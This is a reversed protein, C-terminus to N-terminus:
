WSNVLYLWYDIYCQGECSKLKFNCKLKLFVITMLHQLRLFKINVIMLCIRTKYKNLLKLSKHELKLVKFIHFCWCRCLLSVINICKNILLKWVGYVPYYQRNKNLVFILFSYHIHGWINFKVWYNQNNVRSDIVLHFEANLSRWFKTQHQQAETCQRMRALASNARRLM